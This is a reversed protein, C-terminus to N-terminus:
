KGGEARVRRTPLPSELPSDLKGGGDAPADLSCRVGSRFRGEPNAIAFTVRVTGSAADTVPSIFIVRGPVKTKGDLWLGVEGEPSLSAALPAPLHINVRLSDLQVLTMVETQAASVSEAVERNIRAVVGAFPAKLTRDAIQARIRQVRLSAIELDSKAREHEEQTASGSDRIAQIQAFRLQQLRLQEAAMLLDQQLAESNLRALVQGEAVRAGEKVLIEAIVGTEPFAVQAIRNPETYGFDLASAAAAAALWVGVILVNKM